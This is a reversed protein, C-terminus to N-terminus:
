KGDFTKKLDISLECLSEATARVQDMQIVGHCALNCANTIANGVMMGISNNVNPTFAPKAANGSNNPTYSTGPQNYTRVTTIKLYQNGMGDKAPTIDYMVETGVVFKSQPNSRSIYEGKDGNNFEITHEFFKGHQTEFERKFTTQKVISTKTM